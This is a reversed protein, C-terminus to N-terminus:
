SITCQLDLYEATTVDNTKLPHISKLERLHDKMEQRSRKRKKQLITGNTRWDKESEWGMWNLGFVKSTLKQPKQKRSPMYM